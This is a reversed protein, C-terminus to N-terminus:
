TFTMEASSIGLTVTEPLVKKRHIWALSNVQLGPVAVRVLEAAHSIRSKGRVQQFTTPHSQCRRGGILLRRSSQCRGNYVCGQDNDGSVVPAAGHRSITQSTDAACCTVFCVGLLHIATRAARLCERPM